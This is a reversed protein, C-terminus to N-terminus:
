QTSDKNTDISGQLRMIRDRQAQQEVGIKDIAKRLDSHYDRLTAFKSEMTKALKDHRDVIAKIMEEQRAEHVLLSSHVVRVTNAAQSSSLLSWGVFIILLGMMSIIVTVLKGSASTTTAM